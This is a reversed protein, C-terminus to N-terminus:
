YRLGDKDIRGKLRELKKDIFANIKSQDYILRMQALMIELDAIEEEVNHPRKDIDRKLAIALELAEEVTKDKQNNQGYRCIAKMLLFKDGKNWTYGEFM